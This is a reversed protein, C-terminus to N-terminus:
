VLTAMKGALISGFVIGGVKANSRFRKALNHPDSLDATRVQWLLHTYAGTVGLAYAGFPLWTASMPTASSPVVDIFSPSIGMFDNHGALLWCAYTTSALGYLVRKHRKDEADLDDEVNGNTGFKGFTIATSKLGLKADDDKDQHAYLTDYGITWAVGSAYLPLIVGYDLSGHVAAWGMFAGWNFCLGLVLQPYDFFRKMLPYAVVLPLSAVGWGFCYMTHPLSVLVGLGASLQLALWGVAQAPTLIGAALPRTKTRTVKSDLDKDWLDNITCGAGRMVFAGITFLGLLKPDPLVDLLLTPTTSAPTSPAETLLTTTANSGPIGAAMATSWYCPWLLLWTGIPKDMRSLHAYPRVSQPLYDDVWTVMSPDSTTASNSGANDASGEAVTNVNNSDGADNNRSNSANSPFSSAVPNSTKSEQSSKDGNSTSSSSRIAVFSSSCLPSISVYVPRQRRRRVTEIAKTAIDSVTRKEYSFSIARLRGRVAFTDRCGASSLFLRPVRDALLQISRM